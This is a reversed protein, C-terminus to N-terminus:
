GSLWSSLAQWQLPNTDQFEDIMLHKISADLREQVWGALVPDGLMVLAAREVDNMDVWGRDRKLQIYAAILVRSLRAM